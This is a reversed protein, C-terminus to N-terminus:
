TEPLPALIYCYESADARPRYDPDRDVCYDETLTTRELREFHYLVGDILLTTSERYGDSVLHVSLEDGMENKIVITREEEM